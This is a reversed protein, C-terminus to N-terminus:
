LAQAAHNALAPIMPFPGSRHSITAPPHSHYYEFVFVRIASSLNGQHRRRIVPILASIPVRHAQAIEKLGKWFQNELSISTRHATVTISGKIVTTEVIQQGERQRHAILQCDTAAIAM